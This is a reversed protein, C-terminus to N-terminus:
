RGSCCSMRQLLAAVTEVDLGEIVLGSPAHVARLTPRPSGAVLARSTSPTEAGVTVLRFGSEAQHPRAAAASRRRRGGAGVERGWRCLTSEHVGLVSALERATAGSQQVEAKLDVMAARGAKTGIEAKLELAKSKLEQTLM